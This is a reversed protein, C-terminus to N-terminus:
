IDLNTLLNKWGNNDANPKKGRVLDGLQRDGQNNTFTFSAGSFSGTSNDVQLLGYAGNDVIEVSYGFHLSNNCESQIGGAKVFCANGGGDPIDSNANPPLVFKSDINNSGFVYVDNNQGQLGYVFNYNNEINRSFNVSYWLLDTPSAFIFPSLLPTACASYFTRIGSLPTSDWRNRRYVTAAVTMGLRGIV